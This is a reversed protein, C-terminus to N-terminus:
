GARDPRPLRRREDRFSNKVYFFSRDIAGALGSTGGAARRPRSTRRGFPAPPRTGAPRISSRHQATSSGLTRLEVLQQGSSAVPAAAGKHQAALRADALGRQDVVDRCAGVGRTDQAGLTDLGLHLQRERRQVLEARRQEAVHIGKGSRLAVRQLRRKPETGHRPGVREQDPERDQRQERVDGLRLREDAEHVVRLPEVM